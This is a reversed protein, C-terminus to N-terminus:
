KNVEENKKEEKKAKYKDIMEKFRPHSWNLAYCSATVMFLNVGLSIWFKKNAFEKHAKKDMEEIYKRLRKENSNVSGDFLEPNDKKLLDMGLKQRLKNQEAKLNSLKKNSFGMLDVFKDFINLNAKQKLKAFEEKNLHQATDKIEETVLKNEDFFM